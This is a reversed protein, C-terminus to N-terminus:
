AVGRVLLVGAWLGVLAGLVSAAVYATAKLPTGDEILTIADLAFSSFTTYGGLLGVAVLLRLDPAHAPLARALWGVFVGMLFSGSINVALIGYPFETGAVRGILGALAYRLMSGLAGGLAVYLFAM